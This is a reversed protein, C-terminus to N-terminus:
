GYCLQWYCFIWAFISDEGDNNAIFCREFVMGLVRYVFTTLFLSFVLLRWFMKWCFLNNHKRVYM